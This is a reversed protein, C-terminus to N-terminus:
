RSRGRGHRLFSSLRRHGRTAYGIAEQMVSRMGREDIDRMTFAHVGTGRVNLREVTMSAACASSRSTARARGQARLRRHADARAAGPRHLLRAAHRPRQRQPEIRAHEHRRARRDLDPRDKRETKGFIRPCAPSPAWRWRIIAAWCWRCATSRRRGKGGDGGSADCTHAIQPLYRANAPGSPCLRRSISSSTAASGRGRLGLSALKENLGALRLASPGMDVGRRGAGLDMPAGIIAIHTSHM